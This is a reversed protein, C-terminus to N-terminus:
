AGPLRWISFSGADGYEEEAILTSTAALEAQWGEACASDTVVSTVGAERAAQVALQGEIRSDLVERMAEPNDPWALGLNYFATPGGWVVKLVFPDVCPDALVIGGDSAEAVQGLAATKDSFFMIPARGAIDRRFTAFDSLSASFLAIVAVAAVAPALRSSRWRVRGPEWPSRAGLARFSWVVAETVLPFLVASILLMMGLWFRYPEQNAGWIDNTSGMAWAIGAGLPLAVHVLSGRIAGVLGVLVLAAIVVISSRLGEVLPVGLNSSSAERYTLFADGTAVGVVTALLQPAAFVGAVLWAGVVLRWRGRGSALIMGPIAPVLGAALAALPSISALGPGAVFVAAVLLLSVLGWRARREAHLVGYAGLGYAVLFVTSLFTYTQVEALLGISAAALIVLVLRFAGRVAGSVVILLALLALGALCVAASEGNATFLVGFPGWLVAHSSLSTFWGGQSFVAFTGVLFPLPALAATWWRRTICVTAIAVGLVLASQAVAGAVNWVLIPNAGLLDAVWGMSRYYLDPYPSNGTQTFPEIDERVGLSWNRAIALYSFQDYSYYDRFASLTWGPQRVLPALHLYLHVLVALLATPLARGWLIKRSGVQTDPETVVTM